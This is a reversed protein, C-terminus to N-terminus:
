CGPRHPEQREPVRMEQISEYVNELLGKDVSLGRLPLSDYALNSGLTPIVEQGKPDLQDVVPEPDKRRPKNVKSYLLDM